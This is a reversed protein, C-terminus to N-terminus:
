VDAAIAMSMRELRGAIPARWWIFNMWTRGDSPFCSLFASMVVFLQPSSMQCPIVACPPLPGESVPKMSEGPEFFLREEEVSLCPWTQVLM